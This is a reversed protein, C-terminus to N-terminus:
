LKQHILPSRLEVGASFPLPRYGAVQFDLWTLYRIGMLWLAALATCAFFPAHAQQTKCTLYTFHSVLLQERHETLEVAGSLPLPRNRHKRARIPGGAVCMHWEQTRSHEGSVDSIAIVSGTVDRSYMLGSCFEQWKATGYIFESYIGILILLLRNCAGSFVVHM